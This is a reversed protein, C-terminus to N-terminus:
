CEEVQCMHGRKWLDLLLVGDESSCFLPAWFLSLYNDGLDYGKELGQKLKSKINNNLGHDLELFINELPNM